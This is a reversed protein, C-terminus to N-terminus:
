TRSCGCVARCVTEVAFLEERLLWKRVYVMMDTMVNVGLM